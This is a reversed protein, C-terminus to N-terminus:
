TNGHNAGKQAMIANDLIRETEAFTRGSFVPVVLFFRSLGPNEVLFFRSLGPNEALLFGPCGQIKLGWIIWPQGPKKTLYDLATGTKEDRSKRKAATVVFSM